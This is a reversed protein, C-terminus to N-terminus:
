MIIQKKYVSYFIKDQTNLVLFFIWNILGIITVCNNEYPMSFLINQRPYELGFFIDLNYM